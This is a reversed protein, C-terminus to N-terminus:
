TRSFPGPLDIPVFMNGPAQEGDLTERVLLPGHGRFSEKGAWSRRAPGQM